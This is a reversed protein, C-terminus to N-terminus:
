KEGRGFGAYHLMFRRYCTLRPDGFAPISSDMVCKLQCFAERRKQTFLREYLKRSVSRRSTREKRSMCRRLFLREGAFAPPTIANIQKQMAILRDTEKRDQLLEALERKGRALKGEYGALDAM